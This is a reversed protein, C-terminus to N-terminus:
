KINELTKNIGLKESFQELDKVLKSARHNLGIEQYCEIAESFCNNFAKLDDNDFALLGLEYTTEAVGLKNNYSKFSQLAENLMDEAQDLKESKRYIVGMNKKYEAIGLQDNMREALVLSKKNYEDATEVDGLQTLAYARNLFVISKLPTNGLVDCMSLSQGYCRNAEEWNKSDAYTLGLNNYLQALGYNDALEKYLPICQSFRSIAKMSKGTVSEIAGLNNLIDAEFSRNKVRKVDILAREFHKRSKPYNGLEFQVSALGYLTYGKTFANLEDEHKLCEELSQTSKEWDRLRFYTLGKQLLLNTYKEMNAKDVLKEARECFDRSEKFNGVLRNVWASSILLDAATEDAIKIDGSDLINVARNLLESAEPFALNQLVSRGAIFLYEFAKEMNDASEYHQGLLHIKRDESILTSDEVANAIDGHMKVADTKSISNSIGLRITTNRIEFNTEDFSILFKNNRLFELDRLVGISTRNTLVSM